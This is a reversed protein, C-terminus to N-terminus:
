IAQPQRIQYQGPIHDPDDEQKCPRGTPGYGPLEGSKEKRIHKGYEEDYGDTDDYVATFYSNIEM